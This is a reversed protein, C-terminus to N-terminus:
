AVSMSISKPLAREACARRRRGCLPHPIKGSLFGSALASYSVVGIQQEHCLPELAAEYGPRDYLNYQPQLVEYRPLGHKRSIELAEALRAGTYNSAGIARVKGQAILKQFAGLTEELPM